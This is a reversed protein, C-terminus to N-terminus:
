TDNTIKHVMLYLRIPVHLSTLADIISLPDNDVNPSADSLISDSALM